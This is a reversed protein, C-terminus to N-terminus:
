VNFRRTSYPKSYKPDDYSILVRLANAVSAMKNYRMAWYSYSKSYEVSSKSFGAEGNELQNIAINCIDVDTQVERLAGLLDLEEFVFYGQGNGLFAVM